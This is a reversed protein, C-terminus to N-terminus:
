LHFISSFNLKTDMKKWLNRWFYGVFKGDRDFIISNPLEHLGMIEKFFIDAVQVDDFKKKCSIFYAMKYFRDVVLFISDYGKSTKPLGLVFDMSINTWPKKRVVITTYFSTNQSVGKAVQYVGCIRVFKQVDKYMHLWYYKDKVLSLTKDIGFHRALGGYHKEKILNLWM